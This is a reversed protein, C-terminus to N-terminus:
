CKTVDKKYQQVEPFLEQPVDVRDELEPCRYNMCAPPFYTPDLGRLRTITNTREAILKTRTRELRTNVRVGKDNYIPEPSPSRDKPDLPIGLNHLGLRGTLERIKLQLLFIEQQKKDKLEEINVSTPLQGGVALEGVYSGADWRSKRKRQRKSIEEELAATPILGREEKEDKKTRRSERGEIALRKREPSRSSRSSM